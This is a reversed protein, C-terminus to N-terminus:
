QCISKPLLRISKPGVMEETLLGVNRSKVPYQIAGLTKQDERKQGLLDAGLFGMKYKERNVSPTDKTPYALGEDQIDLQPNVSQIGDILKKGANGFAVNDTWTWNETPDEQVFVFLPKPKTTYFINGAIMCDKPTTGNPHKPHNIGIVMSQNCDIFTNFLIQAREIQIYLDDPTGDMMGIGFQGLGFFHNNTVVHDTGQLRVGGSGAEGEGFFCNLTAVNNDGHRFVLSGRCGRFTNGRVLNGNSKVSIVEPEGNCSIFLNNEIVTSCNGPPPDFPNDKTILQITEYGNGDGQPINRFLNHHIHHHENQNLVILQMLQCNRETQNNTKNEFLNHDIEINSSGPRVRVWKAAKSDNFSCRGLRINKGEIIINGQEQFRFGLLAFHNGKLTVTSNIVVKGPMEARVVIPDDATGNVPKLIMEGGYNGDALMIITGAQVDAVKKKLETLSSVLVKEQGSLTGAMIIQSFLITFIAKPICKETFKFIRNM